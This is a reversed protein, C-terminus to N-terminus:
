AVWLPRSPADILDYYDFDIWYDWWNARTYLGTMVGYHEDLRQLVQYIHESLARKTITFGKGELDLWVGMPPRTPQAQILAACNGDVSYAPMWYHYCGVPLGHGIAGLKHSQYRTDARTGVSARCIIFWIDQDLLVDFDIGTQWYSVDCGGIPYSPHLQSM